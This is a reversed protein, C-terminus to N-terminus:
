KRGPRAGSDGAEGPPPRKEIREVSSYIWPRLFRREQYVEARYVGPPAFESMEPGPGEKWLVGDRFIRIRTPGPLPVKVSVKYPSRVFSLHVIERPSAKRAEFRFGRSEGLADYAIFLRGRAIQRLLMETDYAMDGTPPEDLLVHTRVLSFMSKYSPFPILSEGIFELGAHADVAGIPIIERELSISDLVSLNKEPRSALRSWAAKPLVPLAVFSSLLKLVSDDRWETDANIIEFGSAAEPVPGKWSRRGSPHAVVCM